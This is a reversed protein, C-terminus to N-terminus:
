SRYSEVTKQQRVFAKCVVMMGCEPQIVIETELDQGSVTMCRPGDASQRHQGYHRCVWVVENPTMM